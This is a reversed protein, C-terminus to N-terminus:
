WWIGPNQKKGAQRTGQNMTYRRVGGGGGNEEEEEKL